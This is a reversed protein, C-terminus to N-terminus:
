IRIEDDLDDGEWPPPVRKKPKPATTTANGDIASREGLKEM